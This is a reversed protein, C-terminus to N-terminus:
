VLNLESVAIDIPPSPSSFAAHGITSRAGRICQIASRLLSFNLRCRLWAMYPQDWKTSLCSALRKYFVTAEGALGGTAPMVLPTFSSHEIERVRQEYQRKKENEHKRYCRTGRNSPAHPNFIRVDFFTREYTGGWFGNTAIDLRAGNQTNSSLGILAEGTVPQLNPEICVYTCVESLLNATIDRVENHRITPFGGKPCSLSHEITFKSGCPCEAPARIPQWSYRLALADRFAGKHLAFGYEMIPLSTLWTSAGKEQALAMSRKLSDPLSQMLRDAIAKHRDRNIKHVESKAEM